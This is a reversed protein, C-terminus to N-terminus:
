CTGVGFLAFSTVKWVGESIRTATAKASQRGGPTDQYSSGDKKVLQTKSTDVCDKIEVTPPSANPNVGTVSPNLVVDGRSILGDRQMSTLGSVFVKLADGQAYRTLDPYAPDAIRSADVYANWMGRYADLATGAGTSPNMSPSASASPSATPTASMSPSPAPKDKDCAALLAAALGLALLCRVSNRVLQGGHSRTRLRFLLTM